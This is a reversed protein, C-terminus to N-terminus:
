GRQLNGERKFRDLETGTVRWQGGIRFGQVLGRRIYGLATVYNVGLEAAIEKVTYYRETDPM